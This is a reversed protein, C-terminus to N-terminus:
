KLEEERDEELSRDLIDCAIVKPFLFTKRLLVSRGILISVILLPYFSVDWV